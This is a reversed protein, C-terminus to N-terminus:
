VKEELSSHTKEGMDSGNSGKDSHHLGGMADAHAVVAMDEDNEVHFDRGLYEPGLFTLLIVYAYVCAMFQYIDTGSIM